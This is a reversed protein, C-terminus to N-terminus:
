KALLMDIMGKMRTKITHERLIRDRCRAAIERRKAPRSLYHDLKDILDEADHFCILEKGIEFMPDLDKRYEVLPFGGCLVIEFLRLNSSSIHLFGSQIDINIQAAHYFKRKGEISIADSVVKKELGKSIPASPLQPGFIKFDFDVLKEFFKVRNRYLQGVFGIDCKYFEREEDSVEPVWNMKEDVAVPLHFARKVNATEWIPMLYSDLCFVADYLPLCDSQHRNWIHINCEWLVVLANTKNKIDVITEPLVAWNSEPIFVLDFGENKVKKFLRRNLLWHGLDVQSYYEVTRRRSYSGKELFTLNTRLSFLESYYGFERFVNRISIEILSCSPSYGVVLIKRIDESRSNGEVVIEREKLYVVPFRGIRLTIAYGARLIKWCISRFLKMM